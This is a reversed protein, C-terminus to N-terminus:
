ALEFDLVLGRRQGPPTFTLLLPSKYASNGPLPPCSVKACFRQPALLSPSNPDRREWLGGTRKAGGQESRQNGGDGGQSATDLTFHHGQFNNVEPPKAKEILSNGTVKNSQRDKDAGKPLVRFHWVRM